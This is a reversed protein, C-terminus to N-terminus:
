RSVSSLLLRSNGGYTGTSTWKVRLRDGLFGDIATDDALVGDGPTALAIVPTRASLNIMRRKNAQLFLFCAIDHWTVGGDVTTQVWARLDTGGSGYTFDALLLVGRARELDMVRANEVAGTQATTVIQDILAQQM